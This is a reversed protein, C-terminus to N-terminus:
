SSSVERCHALYAGEHTAALHVLGDWLWEPCRNKDAKELVAARWSKADSKDLQRAHARGVVAGLYRGIALSESAKIKDLCIKEDQPMLEHVVVRKGDIASAVMRHGLYPALLLAGAIVRDAEDDPIKHKALKPAHLPLAEKIDLIRFVDHESAGAAGGTTTPKAASTPETVRVLAAARWCGLSSTGAIRFAADVLEVTSDPHRGALTTVVSRVVAEDILKKILDKESKTLPWYKAGLPFFRAHTKGAARKTLLAKQSRAIAMKFMAEIRPPASDIEAPTENARSELSDAYGGVIAGLAAFLDLGNLGAARSAMEFSLALRLVDFAPNNIVAEDFDNMEVSAVGRADGVAGLNEVHCDGSIWIPPGDPLAKGNKGSLAEYFMTPTARVFAHASIATKLNKLRALQEGRQAPQRPVITKRRPM